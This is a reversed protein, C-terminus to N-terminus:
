ARPSRTGLLLALSMLATLWTGKRGPDSGGSPQALKSAVLAAIVRDLSYRGSGLFFLAVAISGFLVALEASGSGWNSHGGAVALWSPLGLYAGGPGENSNSVTIRFLPDHNAVHGTLVAVTMTAAIGFSALPVFLGLIWALGGGVEAVLALLQFVAPVADGLWSTPHSLKPIGHLIMAFGAVVRLALLGISTFSDSARAGFLLRAVTRQLTMFLNKRGARAM